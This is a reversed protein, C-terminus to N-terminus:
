RGAESIGSRETDVGSACGHTVLERSGIRRTYGTTDGTIGTKSITGALALCPSIM